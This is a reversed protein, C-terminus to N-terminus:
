GFWGGGGGGLGGGGGRPVGGGGGGENRGHAVGVATGTGLRKPNKNRRTHRGRV